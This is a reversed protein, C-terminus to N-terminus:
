KRYLTTPEEMDLQSLYIDLRAGTREVAAISKCSPVELCTDPAGGRIHLHIEILLPVRSARVCDRPLQVLDETHVTVAYVEDSTTEVSVSGKSWCLGAAFDEPSWELWLGESRDSRLDISSYISAFEFPPLNM